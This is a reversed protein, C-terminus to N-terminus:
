TFCVMTTVTFTNSPIGTNAAMNWVLTAGNKVKITGSTRANALSRANTGLPAISSSTGALSCATFSLKTGTYSTSSWACYSGTSCSGISRQNSGGELTVVVQGDEWAISDDAIQVGGPNAKMVADVRAQLSEGDPPAVAANATGPSLAIVAVLAAAAMLPIRRM